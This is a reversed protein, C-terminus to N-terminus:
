AATTSATSGSGESHTHGGWRGKGMFGGRNRHWGDPDESRDPREGNVMATIKATLEDAM